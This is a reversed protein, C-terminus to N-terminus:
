LFAPRTKIMMSFSGPAYNSATVDPRCPLSKLYDIIPKIGPQIPDDCETWRADTVFADNTAGRPNPNAIQKAPPQAPFAGGHEWPRADATALRILEVDTGGMVPQICNDTM